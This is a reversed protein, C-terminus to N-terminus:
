QFSLPVAFSYSADTLVTPARPFGGARRVADLAAQDVAPNGSSRALGLGVLQGSPAVSLQVVARGTARVNPRARSIRAQIQGGWSAIASQIQAPNAAPLPAPATAAGQTAGGGSGTAIRAPAPPQPAPAPPAPDPPAPDPLNPALEEPRTRPRPSTDTALPTAGEFHPATDPRPQAADLTPAALRPPATHDAPADIEPATITAAALANADPMAPLSLVPAESVGAAPATPATLPATTVSPATDPVTGPAPQAVPPRPPRPVATDPGIAVADAAVAPPSLVATRPLTDPPTEWAEILAAHSAAAPALSLIDNGEAGQGEPTGGDPLGILVGAHVAVSVLMFAVFGKM